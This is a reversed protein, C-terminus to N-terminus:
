IRFKNIDTSSNGVDSHRWKLWLTTQKGAVKGLSALLDKNQRKQKILFLFFFSKM